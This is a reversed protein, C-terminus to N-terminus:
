CLARLHTACGDGSWARASSDALAMKEPGLDAAALHLRMAKLYQIAVQGLGGVGSIVVWEGRQAETMAIRQLRHRGRVLDRGWGGLLPEQSNTGSLGGSACQAFTGNVSYGSNQQEACANGTRRSLLRLTRLCQAALRNRRARRGELTYSGGRSSRRNGSRRPGCHAAHKALGALRRGGCASRHSMVATAFVQVLAQGPGPTPIPVERVVLPGGFKEVVAAKV